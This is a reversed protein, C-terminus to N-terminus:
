WYRKGCWWTWRRYASFFRANRWRGALALSNNPSPVPPACRPSSTRNSPIPVPVVITVNLVCRGSHVHLPQWAKRGHSSSVRKAIWSGRGPLSSSKCSSSWRMRLLHIGIGIMLCFGVNHCLLLGLRASACLLSDGLRHRPGVIPPTRGQAVPCCSAIIDAMTV